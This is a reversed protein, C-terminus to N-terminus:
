RLRRRVTRDSIGLVEGIEAHTLRDLRSLVAIELEDPPVSRALTQLQRRAALLTDETAAVPLGELAAGGAEPGRKRQRERLRDIALLRLGDLVEGHPRM